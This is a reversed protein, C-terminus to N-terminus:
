RVRRKRYVLGNLFSSNGAPLYVDSSSTIGFWPGRTFYSCSGIKIQSRMKRATLTEKLSRCPAILLEPFVPFEFGPGFKEWGFFRFGTPVGPLDERWGKRGSRGCGGKGKMGMTETTTGVVNANRIGESMEGGRLGRHVFSGWRRLFAVAVTTFRCCCCVFFFIFCWCCCFICRTTYWWFTFLSPIPNANHLNVGRKQQGRSTKWRPKTRCCLCEVCVCFFSYRISFLLLLFTLILLRQGSVCFHRVLTAKEVKSSCPGRALM